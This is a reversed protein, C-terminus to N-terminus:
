NVPKKSPLIHSRRYFSDMRLCPTSGAFFLLARVCSDLYIRYWARVIRACKATTEPSSITAHKSPLIRIWEMYSYVGRGAIAVACLFRWRGCRPEASDVAVPSSKLKLLWISSNFYWLLTCLYTHFKGQRRLLQVRPTEKRTNEGVDLKYYNSALLIAFTTIAAEQRPSVGIGNLGINPSNHTQKRNSM